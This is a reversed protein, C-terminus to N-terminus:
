SNIVVEVNKAFVMGSDDKITATVTILSDKRGSPLTYWVDMTLNITQDVATWKNATASTLLSEYREVEGGTSPSVIGGVAQQVKATVSTITVPFDLDIDDSTATSNLKLSISFSTKFQYPLIDDQQNNGRVIRYTKTGDSAEATGPSPTITGECFDDVQYSEEDEETPSQCAYLPVLSLCALAVLWGRARQPM